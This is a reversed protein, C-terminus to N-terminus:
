RDARQCDLLASRMRGALRIPNKKGDADDVFSASVPQLRIPEGGSRRSTGEAIPAGDRPENVVRPTVNYRDARQCDQLMSGMRGPLRIPNKKGDADDVFSASVPPLRIPEM